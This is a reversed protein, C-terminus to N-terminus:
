NCPTNLTWNATSLSATAPNCPTCSACCCGGSLSLFAPKDRRSLGTISLSLRCKTQITYATVIPQPGIQVDHEHHHRPRLRSRPEHRSPLSEFRSCGSRRCGSLGSSNTLALAGRSREAETFLPEADPFGDLVQHRVKRVAERKNFM